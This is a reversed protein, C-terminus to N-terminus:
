VFSGGLDRIVAGKDTRGVRKLGYCYGVDRCLSSVVLGYLIHGDDAHGTM